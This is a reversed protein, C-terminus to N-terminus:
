FHESLIGGQVAAATRFHEEMKAQRDSYGQFFDHDTLVLGNAQAYYKVHPYELDRAWSYDLLEELSTFKLNMASIWRKDYATIVYDNPDHNPVPDCM